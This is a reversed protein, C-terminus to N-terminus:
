VISHTFNETKLKSIKKKGANERCGVLGMQKKIKLTSNM